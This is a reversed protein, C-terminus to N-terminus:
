CVELIPNDDDVVAIYGQKVIDKMPVFSMILVRRGDLRRGWGQWRCEDNWKNGGYNRLLDHPSIIVELALFMLALRVRTEGVGRKM